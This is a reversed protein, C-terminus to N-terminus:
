DGRFICEAGFLGFRVSDAGEGCTRFVFDTRPQVFRTPRPPPNPNCLGSAVAWAKFQSNPYIQYHGDDGAVLSLGVHRAAENFFATTAKGTSMAPRGKSSILTIPLYQADAAWGYNHQSCGPFATPRTGFGEYLERQQELDRLGSIMTQGSGVITAVEGLWTLRAGLWPHVSNIIRSERLGM